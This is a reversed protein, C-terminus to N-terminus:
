VLGAGPYVVVPVAVGEGSVVTAPKGRADGVLMGREGSQAIAPNIPATARKQVVPLFFRYFGL